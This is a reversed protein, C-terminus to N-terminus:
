SAIPVARGTNPDFRVIMERKERSGQDLVECTLRQEFGIAPAREAAMIAATRLTDAMAMLMNPYDAALESAIFEGDDILIAFTAM